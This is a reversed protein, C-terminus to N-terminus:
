DEELNYIAQNEFMEFIQQATTCDKVDKDLREREFRPFRLGVGKGEKTLERANTYVPSM